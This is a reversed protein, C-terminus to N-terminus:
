SRRSSMAKGGIVTRRYYPFRLNPGKKVAVSQSGAPPRLDSNCVMATPSSTPARVLGLRMLAVFDMLELFQSLM